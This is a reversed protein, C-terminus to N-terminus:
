RFKGNNWLKEVIEHHEYEFYNGQKDKNRQFLSVHYTKFNCQFFLKYINSNDSYVYNWFSSKFSDENMEEYEKLRRVIVTLEEKTINEVTIPDPLCIDFALNEAGDAEWWESLNYQSMDKGTIEHLKNELKKYEISNEDGNEDCFDTYDLILKLVKSYRKEATEFDPELEKRLEM